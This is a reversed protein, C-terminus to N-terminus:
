NCPFNTTLINDATFVYSIGEYLNKNKLYHGDIILLWDGISYAGKYCITHTGGKTKNVSYSHILAEVIGMAYVDLAGNTARQSVVDEATIHQHALLM